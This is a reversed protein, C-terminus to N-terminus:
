GSPGHVVVPKLGHVVLIRGVSRTAASSVILPAARRPHAGPHRSADGSRLGVLTGSPLLAFMPIRRGLALGFEKRTWNTQLYHPSAVAVFAIAKQLAAEVIEHRDIGYDHHHLDDIYPQGVFRLLREIRRLAAVDNDRRAYSVFVIM